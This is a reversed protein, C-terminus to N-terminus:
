RGGIVPKRRGDLRGAMFVEPQDVARKSGVSYQKRKFWPSAEASKEVAIM